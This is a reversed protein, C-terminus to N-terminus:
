RQPRDALFRWPQPTPTVAKAAATMALLRAGNESCHSECLARYLEIFFYEEVLEGLILSPSATLIPDYEFTDTQADDLLRAEPPLIQKATEKFRGMGIGGLDLLVQVRQRAVRHFQTAPQWSQAARLREIAAHLRRQGTDGLVQRARYRGGIDGLCRM